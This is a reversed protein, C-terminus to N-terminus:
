IKSEFKVENPGPPKSMILTSNEYKNKAQFLGKSTTKWKCCINSTTKWQYFQLDDEM